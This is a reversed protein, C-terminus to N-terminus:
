FIASQQIDEKIKFVLRKGVTDNSIARVEVPIKDEALLTQHWFPGLSIILVLSLLPTRM